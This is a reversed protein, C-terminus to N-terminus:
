QAGFDQENKGASDYMADMMEEESLIQLRPATSRM